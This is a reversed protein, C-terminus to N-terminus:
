QGAGATSPDLLTVDVPQGPSLGAPQLPTAEVLFVLRERNGRSYIVPPTFEPRPSVYTIRAQGGACGDCSFRVKRGPQFGNLRTEGVFFRLKVRNDPLFSLIPANAMAWEGQQYFVDEIRGRAPASSSLQDLRAQAGKAGASAALAESRAAAAQDARAGLDAVALQRLTQDYQARAVELAALAQDRRAPAYVGRDALASIRQFDAQAQKLSAEASARQAAIVAKEASRQGKEADQARDLAATAAAVARDREASATSPDLTFLPQGPVVSQGREVALRVVTGSAPAAMMLTEGEVYGSLTQAQTRPWLMWGATGTGLVLVVVGIGVMRANM